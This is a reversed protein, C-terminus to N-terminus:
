LSMVYCVMSFCMCCGFSMVFTSLSDPDSTERFDKLTVFCMLLSMILGISGIILWGIDMKFGITHISCVVESNGRHMYVERHM